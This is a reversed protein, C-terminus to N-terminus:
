RGPLRERWTQAVGVLGAIPGREAKRAAVKAPQTLWIFVEWRMPVVPLVQRIGAGSLPLTVVASRLLDLIRVGLYLFSLIGIVYICIANLM